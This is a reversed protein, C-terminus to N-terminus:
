KVAELNLSISFAAGNWSITSNAWDAFDHNSVSGAAWERIEVFSADKLKDSLYRRNFVCYHINYPYEQGGMLPRLISELDRSCSEYIHVIKDFDPVSLRLVGGPKLVRRWEWLTQKVATHRVHELVHCAYILDAHNDPFVSLDTVDRVYHVHPAPRADVNIFEPSAIDGCGLHILVKGDPNRPLAPAVLLRKLRLLRSKVRRGTVFAAWRLEAFISQVVHM